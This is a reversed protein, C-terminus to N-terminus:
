CECEKKNCCCSRKRKRNCPKCLWRLTAHERHYQEWQQAITKSAIWLCSDNSGFPSLDREKDSGHGCIVIQNVFEDDFNSLFDRTLQSFQPLFHDVHMIQQREDCSCLACVSIPNQQRFLEIQDWVHRRFALRLDRWHSPTEICDLYAFSTKFVNHNRLTVFFKRRYYSPTDLLEISFHEIDCDRISSFFPYKHTQLLSALLKHELSNKAFCVEHGYKDILKGFYASVETKNLFTRDALVIAQSSAIRIIFVTPFMITVDVNPQLNFASLISGGRYPEISYTINTLRQVLQMPFKFDDRACQFLACCKNHEDAFFYASHKSLQMKKENPNLNYIHFCFNQFTMAHQWRLCSLSIVADLESANRFHEM